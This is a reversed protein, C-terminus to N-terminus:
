LSKLAKQAQENDPDLSLAQQYAGRAKDLENQHQFIMGLRWYAPSLPVPREEDNQALELYREMASASSQLFEGSLAGTRGVQYLALLNPPEAEAFPRLVENAEAWRSQSHLLGALTVAIEPQDPDADLISRFVAEADDTKGTALDIRAKWSKGQVPDIRGIAEAQRYAEKKRGGAIWPAQLHFQILGTRGDISDPNLAVVKELARKATKAFGAAGLGGAEGAADGAASALRLWVDERKPLAKAAKEFDDVAEEPQDQAVRLRGRLDYLDGSLREDFTEFFTDVTKLDGAALAANLRELDPSAAANLGAFLLVAHLLGM